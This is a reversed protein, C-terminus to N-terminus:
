FVNDKHALHCLTPMPNSASSCFHISSGSQHFHSSCTKSSNTIYSAMLSGNKTEYSVKLMRFVDENLFFLFFSLFLEKSNLVEQLM